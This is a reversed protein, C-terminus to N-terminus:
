YTFAELETTDNGNLIFGTRASPNIAIRDIPYYNDGALGNVSEVFNGKPDFV